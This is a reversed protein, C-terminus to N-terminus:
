ENAGGDILNIYKKTAFEITKCQIIYCWEKHNVGKIKKSVIYKGLKSEKELQELFIEFKKSSFYM